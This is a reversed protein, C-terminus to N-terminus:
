NGDGPVEREANHCGAPCPFTHRMGCDRGCHACHAFPGHAAFGLLERLRDRGDPGFIMAAGFEWELAVTGGAGAAVVIEDGYVDSVIGLLTGESAM